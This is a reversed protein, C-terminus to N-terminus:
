NKDLRLICKIPNYAYQSELAENPDFTYVKEAKNDMM